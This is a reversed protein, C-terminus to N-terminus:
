PHETARQAATRAQESSRRAGSQLTEETKKMADQQQNAISRTAQASAQGFERTRQEVESAIRETQERATNLVQETWRQWQEISERMTDFYAARGGSQAQETPTIAELCRRQTETVASMLDRQADMIGTMAPRVKDPDLAISAAQESVRGATDFQHDLVKRYSSLAAQQAREFGSLSASTLNQMTEFQQRYIDFLFSANM